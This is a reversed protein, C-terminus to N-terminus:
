QFCISGVREYVYMRAEERRYEILRSPRLTFVVLLCTEECIDEKTRIAFSFDGYPRLFPEVLVSNMRSSFLYGAYVHINQM